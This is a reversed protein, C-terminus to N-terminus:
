SRWSAALYVRRSCSLSVASRDAAGPPPPEIEITIRYLESGSVMAVIKGPEIRLDVVSGNRVYTRGRPLRNEFDSHSELNECWAKGWFTSAITRRSTEVPALQVKNKAALKRAALMARARLETLPVYSKASWWPMRKDRGQKISISRFQTFILAKEQREALERCIEALRQFKGSQEPAYMGDGTQQSPHNCIQKLRM